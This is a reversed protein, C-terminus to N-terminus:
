IESIAVVECMYHPGEAEKTNQFQIQLVNILGSM